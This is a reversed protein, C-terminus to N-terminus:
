YEASINLNYENNLKDILKPLFEDRINDAELVEVSGYWVTEVNFTSCESIMEDIDNLNLKIENNM